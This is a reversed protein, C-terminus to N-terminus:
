GNSGGETTQLAEGSQRRAPRLQQIFDVLGESRAFWEGNLRDDAFRHHLIAEDLHDGPMFAWVHLREVSGCQLQRMRARLDSARGIKVPGDATGVFYIVKGTRLKWEREELPILEHPLLFGDESM